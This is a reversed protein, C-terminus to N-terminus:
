CALVVDVLHYVVGFRWVRVVFKLADAAAETPPPMVNHAASSHTPIPPPLHNCIGSVM